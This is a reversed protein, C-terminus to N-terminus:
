AESVVAVGSTLRIAKRQLRARRKQIGGDSRHGGSDGGDGSGGGSGQCCVALMKETWQLASGYDRRHHEHYIALREMALLVNRQALQTWLPVAKDFDGSSAYLGALELRADDALPRATEQLHRLATATDGTRRHARAIGLPDADAHGPEAYTRGLVSALAILSLLDTLNHEVVGRVERTEGHQLLDTWIQPIMHGPVDDDRFLKLLQREATQLRCDPWSNKFATRTRHLLDIHALESLPNALRSLRYRTMLLPVDFSKGNFSVLHSEPTIWELAHSLMAAEGAFRTLFYQRVEVTGGRIRALGLLFAITGTGGALGTTETDIFLLDGREPEAGGAVFDLTADHIDAFRISGHRASLPSCHEVLVVGDACLSGGILRAVEDDGIRKKAPRERQAIAFRQLRAGLPESREAHKNREIREIADIADIREIREIRDIRDIGDIGDIRNIRDIQEITELPGAPEFRDGHANRESIAPLQGVGLRTELAKLRARLDM